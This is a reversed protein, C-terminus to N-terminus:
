DINVDIKRDAPRQGWDVSQYELDCLGAVLSADNSTVGIVSGDSLWVTLYTDKAWGTSCYQWAEDTGRFSRDGPAGLVDLVKSKPDGYNIALSAERVNSVNGGSGACGILLAMTLTATVVVKYFQM